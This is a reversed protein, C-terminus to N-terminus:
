LIWCDTPLRAPRRVFECCLSGVGRTLEAWANSGSLNHNTLALVAECHILGV